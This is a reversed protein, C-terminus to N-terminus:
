NETPVKAAHDVVVVPIMVKKSELKLGLQNQLAGFITPGGADPRMSDPVWYLSLDYTGKLDTADVGPAGVQYDLDRVLREM